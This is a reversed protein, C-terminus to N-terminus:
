LQIRSMRQNAKSFHKMSNVEENRIWEAVLLLSTGQELGIKYLLLVRDKQVEVNEQKRDNAKKMKLKFIM